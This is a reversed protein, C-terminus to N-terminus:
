DVDLDFLKKMENLKPNREALWKFKDAASYPRDVKNEEQAMEINLTLAPKGLSKRLHEMLDPKVQSFDKELAVNDVVFAITLEDKWEPNRRTMASHLSMKGQKFLKEAFINWLHQLPKATENLIADLGSAELLSSSETTEAVQPQPTQNISDKISITKPVGSAIPMPRSPPTREPERAVSPAKAVPEYSKQQAQPLKKEEPQPEAISSSKKKEEPVSNSAPKALMCMKLLSLEVHLRQNQAARYNIDCRNSEELLTFLFGTPCQQAQSLYKERIGESVELLEVTAADKCVLLNRFHTSLGAIFHHGDFGLSLIEDFTRLISSIDGTLIQDTVKFFYDYDLIHLNEIVAKYTIKNGGFSVLRDFISLADRLAGDAKMAIMHLADKEADVGENKAIGALHNAIDDVTIRSFDFIQCRSLITPIIKHKETTALIFVAYSPPEELTKLFANFASGSLMHVEDIIYVKYKGGVPAYRVQEVLARIDEVSNNSAADLEFINLSQGSNFTECSACANCPEFDTTLNLCNITKALIRACTTKGVGRPGTFLFAHALHKNRIANKLTSTIAEQGVVTNFTMPRYKRASVVFNEM